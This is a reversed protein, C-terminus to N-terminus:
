FDYSVTIFLKIVNAVPGDVLRVREVFAVDAGLVKQSPVLTIFDKM